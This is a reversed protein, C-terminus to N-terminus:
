TARMRMNWRYEKWFRHWGNIHVSSLRNRVHEDYWRHNEEWANFAEVRMNNVFHAWECETERANGGYVLIYTAHPWCVSILCIGRRRHETIWNEDKHEIIRPAQHKRSRLYAIYTCMWSLLQPIVILLRAGITHAAQTLPKRSNRVALMACMCVYVVNLVKRKGGVKWGCVNQVVYSACAVCLGIHQRPM